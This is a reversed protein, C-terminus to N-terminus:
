SIVGGTWPHRIPHHLQEVESYKANNVGTDFINMIEVNPIKTVISSTIYLVIAICKDERSMFDSYGAHSIDICM